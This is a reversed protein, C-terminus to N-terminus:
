LFYFDLNEKSKKSPSGSGYFFLLPDPDPLGLFMRSRRDPDVFSPLLPGLDACIVNAYASETGISHIRMLKLASGPGSGSRPNQHGFQSFECSFNKQILFQFKYAVPSTQM